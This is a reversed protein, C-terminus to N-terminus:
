SNKFFSSYIFELKKFDKRKGSILKSLNSPDIGTKEALKRISLGKEKITNRILEQLKNEKNNTNELTKAASYLKLLANESLNTKDKNINSIHRPSLKSIDAMPRVGYGRIAQLVTVLMETKQEACMGYEIQADPDFGTFFQEEWKNAEKGIHQISKVRIHRRQTIGADMYDGNLFKTEPHLHYQALSDLYTKLQFKKIKEGSSRDFCCAVAKSPNKDYSAVPKLTKLHPPSQMALLFNFPRVRDKYPKNENYGAFWKELAPTTAGYRSVAPMDFNELSMFDPQRNELAATIIELWLDQQWPQSDELTKTNPRQYPALLHGLGHASVKRLIPQGNKDLNFLAYRKSSIAYCYLPELTDKDSLSYNYGEIKLLPATEAYPNLPTFWEQVEQARNYFEKINMNEPKALAMSDTDCFAWDLGTDVAQRETIALMLRAAGTILAALLPHFFSGTAEFKKKELKTPKSSHGYCLLPQTQKEEEVNLEVFIGYSTANALIKLALQQNGLSTKEQLSATEMKEKVARRLDIVRRFFDGECPDVAYDTNGAVCVPKLDDQIAKPKFSIAQLIKPTRGTLLKASICDSLTFWLPTDSTLFNSGITYQADGGYKARVPFIGGDPVIQVLTCLSQWTEQKKLVPITITDLFKRTEETSDHWDMGQATVFRWLGMLTCVTPYMSLFDCYLVQVPNRRIHVESRGGYYASMINGLIDDPFDPQMKRWPSVGMDRLYAKGLSAESHINHSATLELGHLEYLSQLREFCEWTTQTDQMAYDIYESTLARGHDDTHQKQTPTNLTQALSALSYSQSTLAAALTKADIFFGRRVPQYNGKKRNGRSTRQERTAAFQIFADRSSVHKIQVRPQWHNESLKFTFGGRMIKNHRTGRAPAHDIALRSIDFPLNFGVISARYKYGVRYFIDEIFEQVTMITLEHKAAYDKLTVQEAENLTEPDYFVGAEMLDSCKRVQYTGFRLKQAADSTTETDFVLVWESPVPRKRRGTRKIPLKPKQDTKCVYARVAIPLPQEDPISM